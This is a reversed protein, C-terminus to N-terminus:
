GPEERTKGPRVAARSAAASSGAPDSAHRAPAVGVAQWAQTIAQMPDSKSGYRQRAAQITAEAFGAFDVDKPLKSESLTDYWVQGVRQWAHGGVAEAALYFAHNPIGSNIHVGGNDHEEDHPMKQYDRWYAPQPDKGLVPDDYATGPARLSRLAVGQVQETFLGAGILWDAQEATQGLNYQATLVGFVDSIHENLAGSQGVYVFGRTYQTLGHALEHAIVDLSDTFSRFVKGDGDGFVMQEGDWFANDYNEEFHVSAVLPMGAGDLSDRGYSERLFRWTTGLGDYAENVSEDPHPGSGEARRLVGPLEGAYQADYVSRKPAAPTIAASVDPAPLPPTVHYEQPGPEIKRLLTNPIIGGGAGLRPPRHGGSRRATRLERRHRMSREVRLTQRARAAVDPDDARSLRILLYPPLIGCHLQRQPPEAPSPHPTMHTM